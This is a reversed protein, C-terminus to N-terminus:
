SGIGAAVNAATEQKRKLVEQVKGIMALANAYNDENLRLAESVLRGVKGDYDLATASAGTSGKGIGVAEQAQAHTKGSALHAAYDKVDTRVKSSRADGKLGAKKAKGALRSLVDVSLAQAQTFREANVECAELAEAAQTYRNATSRSVKCGLAETVREFWTAFDSSKGSVHLNKKKLAKVALAIRWEAQAIGGFTEATSRIEAINEATLTSLISDTDKGAASAAISAPTPTPSKKKATAM